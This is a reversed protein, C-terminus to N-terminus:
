RLTISAAMRAFDDPDLQSNEPASVM